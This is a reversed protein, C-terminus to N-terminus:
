GEVPPEVIPAAVVPAVPAVPPEEPAVEIVEGLGMEDIEATNAPDSIFDLFVAADNDFEARLGPALGMFFGHTDRVRQISEAYSGVESVDAFRGANQAVHSVMGSQQYKRVINNIDCEDKFSQKAGLEPDCSVVPRPDDTFMGM